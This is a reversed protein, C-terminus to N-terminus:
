ISSIGTQSSFKIGQSWNRLHMYPLNPCTGTLSKAFKTERALNVKPLEM